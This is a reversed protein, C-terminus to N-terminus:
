RTRLLLKGSVVSEMKPDFWTQGGDISCEVTLGPFAVNTKLVGAVIRFLVSPVCNGLTKARLLNPFHQTKKLQKRKEREGLPKEVAVM